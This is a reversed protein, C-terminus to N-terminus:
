QDESQARAATSRPEAMVDGLGAREGREAPGWPAAPPHEEEGGRAQGAGKLRRGVIPACVGPNFFSFFFLFILRKWKWNNQRIIAGCICLILIQSLCCAFSAGHLRSDAMHLQEKNYNHPALNEAVPWLAFLRHM